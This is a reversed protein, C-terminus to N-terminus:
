AIAELPIHKWRKGNVIDSIHPPCVDFVSALMRYTWNGTAALKRIEIIQATTLKSSGQVEGRPGVALGADYAKQTNDAHTVWTLNNAWSHVKTDDKHHVEPLEFPNPVFARAVLIHVYFHQNIGHKSLQVTPYEKRLFTGKIREPVTRFGNTVKVYRLLSKIRGFNSVAYLGEFGAIGAWQERM